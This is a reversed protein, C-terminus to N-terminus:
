EVQFDSGYIQIKQRRGEVLYDRNAGVSSPSQGAESERRCVCFRVLEPRYSLPRQKKSISRFVLKGSGTGPLPAEAQKIATAILEDVETRMLM